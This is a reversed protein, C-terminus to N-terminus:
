PLVGGSRRHTGSAQKGFVDAATELAARM